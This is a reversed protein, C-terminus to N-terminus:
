YTKGKIYLQKSEAVYWSITEFADNTPREHDAYWGNSSGGWGWNCYLLIRKGSAFAIKGANPDEGIQYCHIGEYMWAHGSKKDKDVGSSVHPYGNKINYAIKSLDANEEKYDYKIGLEDLKGRVNKIPASSGNCAYSTSVWSSVALVFRAVKTASAQTPMTPYGSHYQTSRLTPLDYSTEISPPALYALVQAYAIATCGTPAKGCYTWYINSCSYPILNNFPATQNWELGTLPYVILTTPNYSYTTTSKKDMSYYHALDNECIEEINKIAMKMGKNYITDSINGESVLAYVGDKIREDGTAIAFGQKNDKEFAVTYVILDLNDNKENFKTRTRVNKFISDKEFSYVTEEASLITIGTLNMSRTQPTGLSEAFQMIREIALDYGSQTEVEPLTVLNEIEQDENSNCSCFVLLIALIFISNKM